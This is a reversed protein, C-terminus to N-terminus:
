DEIYTNVKNEELLNVIKGFLRRPISLQIDNELVVGIYKIDNFRLAKEKPKREFYLISGM